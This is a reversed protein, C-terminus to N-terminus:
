AHATRAQAQRLNHNTTGRHTCLGPLCARQAPRCLGNDDWAPKLRQGQGMEALWLPAFHENTVAVPLNSSGRVSPITWSQQSGEVRRFTHRDAMSRDRGEEQTSRAHRMSLSARLPLRPPLRGAKNAAHSEGPGRVRWGSTSEAAGNRKRSLRLESSSL